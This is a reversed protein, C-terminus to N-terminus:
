QNTCCCMAVAAEESAGDLVTESKNRSERFRVFVGVARTYVIM